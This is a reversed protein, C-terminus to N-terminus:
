SRQYNSSIEYQYRSGKMLGAGYSNLTIIELGKSSPKLQALQKRARDESQKHGLKAYRIKLIPKM